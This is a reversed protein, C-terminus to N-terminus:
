ILISNLRFSFYKKEQDERKTKRKLLVWCFYINEHDRVRYPSNNPWIGESSPPNPHDHFVATSKRGRLRRTCGMSVAWSSKGRWPFSSQPLKLRLANLSLSIGGSLWRAQAAAGRHTKHGWSHASVAFSLVSGRDGTSSCARERQTPEKGLKSWQVRQVKM